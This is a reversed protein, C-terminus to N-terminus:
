VDVVGEMTTLLHTDVIVEDGSDFEVWCTALSLDDSGLYTCPERHGLHYVRTGPESSTVDSM